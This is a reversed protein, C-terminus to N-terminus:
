HDGLHPFNLFDIVNSTAERSFFTLNEDSRLRMYAFMKKFFLPNKEFHPFFSDKPELYTLSLNVKLQSM